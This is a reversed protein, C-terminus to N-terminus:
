HGHNTEKITKGQLIGFKKAIGLLFTMASILGVAISIALILAGYEAGFFQYMGFFVIAGAALSIAGICYLMAIGILLLWRMLALCLTTGIGLVLLALLGSFIVM